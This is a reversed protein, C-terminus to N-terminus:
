LVFSQRETTKKLNLLRKKVDELDEETYIFESSRYDDPGIWRDDTNDQRPQRITVVAYRKKGSVTVHITDFKFTTIGFNQVFIWSQERFFSVLKEEYNLIPLIMNERPLIELIYNRFRILELRRKPHDVRRDLERGDIIRIHSLTIEQLNIIMKVIDKEGVYWIWGRTEVNGIMGQKPSCYQNMFAVFGEDPELPLEEHYPATARLATLVSLSLNHTACLRVFIVDLDM